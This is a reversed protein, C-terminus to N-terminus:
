GGERPAMKRVETLPTPPIRVWTHTGSGGSVCYSWRGENMVIASKDHTAHPVVCIFEIDRADQGESM